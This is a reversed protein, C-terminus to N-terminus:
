RFFSKAFAKIGEENIRCIIKKTVSVTHRFRILFLGGVVSTMTPQMLVLYLMYDSLTKCFEREDIVAPSSEDDSDTNYCFETAIHWLLLSKNFEVDEVSPLLKSCDVESERDLVWCGRADCISRITEPYDAFRSKEQLEKFIFDWLKKDLPNKSVYILEDLFDGLGLDLSHTCCKKLSIWIKFKVKSFYFYVQRPVTFLSFCGRCPKYIKRPRQSVSYGILNYGSISESWRRFLVPTDFVTLKVDGPGIEHESWSPKKLSLVANLIRSFYNCLTGSTRGIRKQISIYTWESFILMLLSVVELAIAGFLLIYTIVVDVPPFGDKEMRVFLALACIVISLYIARSLYGPISRVVVVKTYLVEYIFNLEMLIVRLSDEPASSLFFCRSDERERWTLYLDVILGKFVQFCRYSNWVLQMEGLPEMTDDGINIAVERRPLLSEATCMEHLIDFSAQEVEGAHEDEFKGNKPLPDPKWLMSEKFKDLSALYLARTRELYKILGAILLLIPPVLRNDEPFPSLFVYVTASLEVVLGLTHRLWLANDELAFATITDPGGFHILLFPAWFLSLSFDSSNQRPSYFILGVAYGPIWDALLYASWILFSMWKKATKKRFPAFVLLFIQLSLSLILFGRISCKSWADEVRGLDLAM